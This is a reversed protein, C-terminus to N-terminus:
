ILAIAADKVVEITFSLGRERIWAKIKAWMSEDRIKNLYDQGDWTLSGVSFMYISNDAYQPTYSNVLGRGYLLKCHYAITEMGYGDVKLNQIAGSPRKEIELLIQRILEMNQEM